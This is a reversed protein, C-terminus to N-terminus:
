DLARVPFRKKTNEISEEIRQVLATSLAEKSLQDVHYVQGSVMDIVDKGLRSTEFSAADCWSLDMINGSGSRLDRSTDIFIFDTYFGHKLKLMVYEKGTSLSKVPRINEVSLDGPRVHGDEILKKIIVIPSSDWPLASGHLRQYRAKEADAMEKVVQNLEPSAALIGEIKSGLESYVVSTSLSGRGSNKLVLMRGDSLSVRIEVGPKLVDNFELISALDILEGNADVSLFAPGGRRFPRQSLWITHTIGDVEMDGKIWNMPNSPGASAWVDSRYQSSWGRDEAQKLLKLQENHEGSVTLAVRCADKDEVSVKSSPPRGQAFVTVEALSISLILATALRLDIKILIL